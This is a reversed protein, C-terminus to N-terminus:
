PSSYQISFNEWKVDGLTTSDITKYLDKHDMFLPEGGSGLLSAAWIDLLSDIQAAPMQSHTYLFDALEFELRNRYPSWDNNPKKHLPTPSADNELFDGKKDCPWILPPLQPHWFYQTLQM